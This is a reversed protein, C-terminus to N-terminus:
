YVAETGRRGDGKSDAAGCGASVTDMLMVMIVILLYLYHGRGLREATQIAQTLFLGIGGGTIAGIITALTHQISITYFPDAVFCSDADGQPDVGFRYRQLPKAGTSQVGRNQKDDVNEASGSFSKALVARIPSLIALSRGDFARSRLRPEPHHTLILRGCRARFRVGAARAFRLRGRPCLQANGCSYAWRCRSIIAAGFTGLFAMLITEGMAWMVDSHRWMQQGSIRGRGRVFIRCPDPELQPGTLLTQLRSQSLPQRLTFV